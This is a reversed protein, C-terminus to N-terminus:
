HGTSLLGKDGLLAGALAERPRNLFAHEWLRGSTWITIDARAHQTRKHWLWLVRFCCCWSCHVAINKHSVPIEGLSCLESAIYDLPHQQLSNPLAHHWLVIRARVTITFHTASTQDVHTRVRDISVDFNAATM